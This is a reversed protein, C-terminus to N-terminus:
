PLLLKQLLILDQINIVGDPAAAPYLDGHALHTETATLLGMVIRTTILLDGANISGDANMDGDGLNVTLPIPDVADLLGDGDTDNSLPNLDLGPTYQSSDGDFAVEDFDSLGDGDSDALLTNTGIGTEFNDDLGDNDDDGDCVNGASDGDTDTQDLSAVTPCLDDNDLYTDEDRNVGIRVGSGPPVAMFTLPQGPVAAINFLATESLPSESSRDSEFTGNSLRRWGRAEGNQIGKVVLDANGAVAQQRFLEARSRQASVPQTCCNTSDLTIQQGVVPKLNSDFAFMFQVMQRRLVDPDAGSLSFDFLVANHFRELTDIAGDHTFGFGRIQDGKHGNDGSNNFPIDAMGFMGVKEYMNRLHPVKLDQLAGEFSMLGATGFFGQATDLTHCGNCNSIGDSLFGGMYYDKGQQQDFTLSDDLARIPNPPPTVKLIFDTYAQM